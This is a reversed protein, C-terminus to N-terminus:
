QNLQINFRTLSSTELRHLQALANRLQVKTNLENFRATELDDQAQLVLRSTSLGADFKAKQLEYQKEALTTAKATIQVSEINTSVALM